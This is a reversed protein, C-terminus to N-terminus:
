DDRAGQLHKDDLANKILNFGRNIATVKNGEFESMSVLRHNRKVKELESIQEQLTQLDMNLLLGRLKKRGEIQLQILEDESNQKQQQSQIYSAFLSKVEDKATSIADTNRAFIPKQFEDDLFRILPHLEREKSQYINYPIEIGVIQETKTKM